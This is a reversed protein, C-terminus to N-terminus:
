AGEAIYLQNSVKFFWVKQQELSNGALDNAGTSVVAKYTAGSRLANSPDLMATHTTANYSVSAVLETTSGKKFLKFISANISSAMM